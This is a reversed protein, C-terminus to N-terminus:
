DGPMELGWANRLESKFSPSYLHLSKLISLLQEDRVSLMDTCLACGPQSVLVCFM